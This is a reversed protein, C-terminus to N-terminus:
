PLLSEFPSGKFQSAAVSNSFGDYQVIGNSDFTVQFTNAGIGEDGFSMQHPAESAGPPLFFGLPWGFDVDFRKGDYYYYEAVVGSPTGTLENPAGLRHIVEDWKTEGPRIFAVDEAQLPHNLTVRTWSIPTCGTLSLVMTLILSLTCGYRLTLM